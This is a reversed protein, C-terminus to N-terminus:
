EPASRFLTDEDRELIEKARQRALQEIKEEPLQEPPAGAPPGLVVELSGHRLRQVGLERMTTVLERLQDAAILTGM